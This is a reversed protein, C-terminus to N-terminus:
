GAHVAPLAAPRVGAQAVVQDRDVGVRGSDVHLQHLDAVLHDIRQADLADALDALDAHGRGDGVRHEVGGAATDAFQRDGDLIEQLDPTETPSALSVGAVVRPVARPM